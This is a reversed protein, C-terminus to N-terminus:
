VEELTEDLIFINQFCPKLKDTLQKFFDTQPLANILELALSNINDGQRNVTEKWHTSTDQGRTGSSNQASDEKTTQNDTSNSDTESHSESDTTSRNLSDTQTSIFEVTPNNDLDYPIVGGSFNSEPYAFAFARQKGNTTSTDNSDTTSNANLIDKITRELQAKLEAVTQESLHFSGDHTTTQDKYNDFFWKYLKREAWMECQEKYIPYYIGLKRKWFWLFRKETDCLHDLLFFNNLKKQTAEDVETDEYPDTKALIEEFTIQPKFIPDDKWDIPFM